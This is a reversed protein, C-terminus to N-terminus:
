RRYGGLPNYGGSVVRSTTPYSPTSAYNSPPAQNNAGQGPNPRPSANQNAGEQQSFQTKLPDGGANNQPPNGGNQSANHNVYPQPQYGGGPTQYPGVPSHRAPYRTVITRGPTHHQITTGKATHHITTVAPKHITTTHYGGAKIPSYHTTPPRINYPYYTATPPNVYRATNVIPSTRRYTGPYGQNPPPQHFHLGPNLGPNQSPQALSQDLSNQTEQPRVPSPTGGVQRAVRPSASKLALPAQRRNAMFHTVKDYPPLQTEIEDFDPRDEPDLELMSQITSVLLNNDRQHKDAFAKKHAELNELHLSGDKNYIDKVNKANGLELISLGLGWVDNKNADTPTTLKKNKVNEYKEPSAFHSKGSMIRQIQNDQPNPLEAFNEILKYQTPSDMAISYPAISGHNIGNRQLHAGGSVTNYLMHTLEENTFAKGERKKSSAQYRADTAPLEFFLKVWYFISCFEKKRGASYDLLRVLNPHSLALRKKIAKIEKVQEQQSGFTKEKM